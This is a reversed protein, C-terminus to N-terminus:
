VSAWNTFLCSFLQYLLMNLKILSVQLRHPFNSSIAGGFLPRESYSDGSMKSQVVPLMLMILLM